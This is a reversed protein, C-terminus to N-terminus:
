GAGNNSVTIANRSGPATVAAQWAELAQGWSFTRVPLRQVDINGSAILRIAVRFDDNTKGFTTILENEKAIVDTYYRPEVRLGGLLGLLITRGGPRGLSLATAITEARGVAELVVDPAQGCADAVERSIVSARQESPDIVHSAGAHLAAVRSEESPDIAVIPHVGAGSAVAIAMTGIRGAGVIALSEGLGVRARRFAHILLAADSALLSDTFSMGDPLPHLQRGPVAVLEAASGFHESSLGLLYSQSCLNETGAACYPCRGCGVFGNIAVRTGAVPAGAASAAIVGSGRFGPVHPFAFSAGHQKYDVGQSFFVDGAGLLVQEVRVVCEDGGAVPEEVDGYEAPRGWGGVVLARM